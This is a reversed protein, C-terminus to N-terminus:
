LRKLEDMLAPRNQYKEKWNCIIEQIVKEGGDIELMRRLIRVWRKYKSRNGGLAAMKNLEYTYKQLLEHPYQNKLDAEYNYLADLGDYNMVFDLLRDYLCEEKYLKDVYLKNSLIDFIEERVHLWGDDTYLSKLENYDDINGINDKTVLFWLQEKYKEDNGLTHYIDKLQHRYHNSRNNSQILEKLIAIAEDYKEDELCLTVYDQFLGHEKCFHYLDSHAYDLDKLVIFQYHFWRPVRLSQDWESGSNLTDIKEEIFYLKKISQKEDKFHNLLVLELHEQAFDFIHDNNLYKILRNFIKTNTKKDSIEIIEDWLAICEDYFVSLYGASDDMETKSLKIFMYSSLNFADDYCANEVMEQVIGNLIHDMDAVLCNANHYTIFNYRDKYKNVIKTIEKKLNKVEDHYNM